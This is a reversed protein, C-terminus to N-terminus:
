KHKSLINTWVKNEDLEEINMPDVLTAISEAQENLSCSRICKHLFEITSTKFKYMNQIITNAFQMKDNYVKGEECKWSSSSHPLLRVVLSQINLM